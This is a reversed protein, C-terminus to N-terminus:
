CSKSSRRELVGALLAPMTRERPVRGHVETIWRHSTAASDRCSYWSQEPAWLGQITRELYYIWNASIGNPNTTAHCAYNVVCGNLHGDADYAGIVSVAPDIPGAPEIIDPNGQGPHTWSQGNKMRFRRNFAVTDEHGVGFSCRSPERLSDAITVARVIESEVHKLYGADAMSSQEYALKRVLPSAHDYEGPIVMGVPGSSHSHSAGIMISGPAIGCRARIAERASLVVQRPIVLSDIGVTAVRQSGDGFVAARVKCADHFKKLFAKGYGGPQEMGIDPTIDREAFGAKLLGDTAASAALPSM